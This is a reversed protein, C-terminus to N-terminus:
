RITIRSKCNGPRNGIGEMSNVRKKVRPHIKSSYTSLKLLQVALQPYCFSAESVARVARAPKPEEHWDMRLRRCEAVPCKCVRGAGGRVAGDKRGVGAGNGVPGNNGAADIEDRGIPLCRRTAAVADVHISVRRALNRIGESRDGADLIEHVEIERAMGITAADLSDLDAGCRGPLIEREVGAGDRVLAIHKPLIRLEEEGGVGSQRREVELAEVSRSGIAGRNAVHSNIWNGFRDRYRQESGANQLRRDGGGCLWACSPSWGIQVFPREVSRGKKTPRHRRATITLWTATATLHLRRNCIREPVFSIGAYVCGYLVPMIPARHLDLVLPRGIFTRLETAAAATDM